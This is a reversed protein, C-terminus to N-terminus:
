AIIGFILFYLARPLLSGQEAAEVARTVWLAQSTHKRVGQNLGLGPVLPPWYVTLQIPRSMAAMESSIPPGRAVGGKKQMTVWGYHESSQGGM